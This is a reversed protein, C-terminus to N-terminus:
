ESNKNDAIRYTYKLEKRSPVEVGCKPYGLAGNVVIQFYNPIDLLRRLEKEEQATHLSWSLLTLSLGLTTAVLCCNQIGLSVDLVPLLIESPMEYSRLDACFCMFCPVFKSFGTAGQSTKLCKAARSPDNTVFIQSTQRNCSSPSWNIVEVISKITDTQVTKNSYSRISRRNMIVNLLDEYGSSTLLPTEAKTFPQCESQLHEYERLKKKAWLVSADKLMESDKIHDLAEQASNYISSSHGPECDFRELGKDIIHAYKRLKQAWYFDDLSHHNERLDIISEAQEILENYGRPVLAPRKVIRV